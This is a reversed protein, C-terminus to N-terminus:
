SRDDIPLVAIIYDELEADAVEEESRVQGSVSIGLRHVAMADHSILPHWDPLSRGEHVRRYGCTEPLWQFAAAREPTIRTCGPVREFRNAYDSCSCGDTDLLRCAVSLTAIDGSEEDELKLLCCQGCGDCLAEWEAHDLAELPFREWFRERM